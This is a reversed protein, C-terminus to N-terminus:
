PNLKQDRWNDKTKWTSVDVAKTSGDLRLIIDRALNSNSPNSYLDGPAILDAGTQVRHYICHTIITEPPAFRYSLSNKIPNTEENYPASGDALYSTAPPTPTPAASAITSTVYAFGDERLGWYNWAYLSLDDPTASGVPDSLPALPSKTLAGYSSRPITNDTDDNPCLLIDNSGRLYGTGKDRVPEDKPVATGAPVPTPATANCQTGIVCNPEIGNFNYKVGEGALDLITDPYAREDQYYQQTALYIQHLNSQCTTQNGNEQARKFAPFLLASLLAIIALVVLLEVLTFASRKAPKRLHLLM